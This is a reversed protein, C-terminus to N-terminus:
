FLHTLLGDRLKPEFWTSKPPMISGADAVALLEAVTVPAMSFAVAAAGGDVQQELEATGRIGGVFRVRPDTRIDVVDLLPGLIQDQLRAVDLSGVADDTSAPPALRVGYWRGALYMASHGRDPVPNADPSVDLRATVAKLFAEPTAGALDSLTRNYALIRTEHDPFAVALFRDRGASTADGAAASRARAASAARHHGDAIYLAPVADFAASLATTLPTPARWVTHQVGDPATFDFLPEDRSIRAVLDDVASQQRYTLFVVGTQAGLTEMHRTRDDEKDPRTREHKKIVGADYEDLSYCGAVGTQVHAGDRLRYVYLSPTDEVVLPAQERLSALNARAREYVAAAYPDTEDPLDIEPRTVHLFSLPLEAALSRAEAVNVVDYPVSAVASAVSPVPRLARFPRVVAM